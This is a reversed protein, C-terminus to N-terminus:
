LNMNVFRTGTHYQCMPHGAKKEGPHIDSITIVDPLHRKCFSRDLRTDAAELPRTHANRLSRHRCNKVTHHPFM